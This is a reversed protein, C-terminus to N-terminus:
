INRVVVTKLYKNELLNIIRQCIVRRTEIEPMDPMQHSINVRTGIVFRIEDSNIMKRVVQDAPGKGLEQGSRYLKLISEVKNLTLVGETVIDAGDMAFAPPLDPDYDEQESVIERGLERAIIDATTGGCILKSGDFKDFLSAYGKDNDKSFPAGTCILLRRPIRFYIVGCSTDDKSMYGDNAHAMSVIQRSLKMSSINKSNVILGHIYDVVDEREWGLPFRPSGMGSQVIGDSMFIIRDEQKPYFTLFRLKKGKHKDSSMSTYSWETPLEKDGRMIVTQPNDYEMVRVEGDYRIDIITFTSYSIKRESCVPLTNMITEAMEEFDKYERAFNLSITATLTALVNAKVGHGMGDSLVCLIRDEESVKQRLFVDGCIREGHHNIQSCEIDTYYM